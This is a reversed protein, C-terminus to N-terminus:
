SQVLSGGSQFNLFNVILKQIEILILVLNFITLVGYSFFIVFYHNFMAAMQCNIEFNRYFILVKPKDNLDVKGM